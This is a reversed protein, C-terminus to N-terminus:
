TGHWAGRLDADMIRDYDDRTVDALPGAADIGAVNLVADVRGFADLAAAFMAEVQNEQTVDCRFPMVADGLEAATEKERGSIDAALVRAVERVFVRACARGMGSGAGAIVAVRGDLEAM